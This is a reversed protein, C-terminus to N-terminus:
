FFYLLYLDLYFFFKVFITFIIIIYCHIIHCVILFLLFHFFQLIVSYNAFFVMLCVNSTLKVGLALEEWLAIESDMVRKIIHYISRTTDVTSPSVKVTQYLLRTSVYAGVEQHGTPM